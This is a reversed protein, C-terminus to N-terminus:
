DEPPFEAEPENAMDAEFTSKYDRYNGDHCWPQSRRALTSFPLSKHLTSVTTYTYKLLLVNPCLKGKIMFSPEERRGGCTSRMMGCGLTVWYRGFSATSGSGRRMMPRILVLQGVSFDPPLQIVCPTCLCHHCHDPGRLVPYRPNERYGRPHSPFYGVPM